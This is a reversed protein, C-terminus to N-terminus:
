GVSPLVDDFNVLETREDLELLATLSLSVLVAAVTEPSSEYEIIVVNGNRRLEFDALIDDVVDGILNEITTLNGEQELILLSGDLFRKLDDAQGSSTMEFRLQGIRTDGDVRVSGYGYKIDYLLADNLAEAVLDDLVARPVDFGYRIQGTSSSLYADRTDGSVTEGGNEQVDIVDRVTGSDGFVYLGDDLVGVSGESTTYLTRGAYEDLGVRLGLELASQVNQAAWDTWLLIGGDGDLTGVAAAESIDRPDLGMRAEITDLAEETTMSSFGIQGDIAQRLQDDALIAEIDAHIVFESGAPVADIRGPDIDEDVSSLCGDLGLMAGAALTAGAQLIERRSSIKQM